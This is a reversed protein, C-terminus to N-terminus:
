IACRLCRCAVCDQRLHQRQHQSPTAPTRTSSLKSCAWALPAGMRASNTPPAYEQSACWMVSGVGEPWPTARQMLIYAALELCRYLGECLGERAESACKPPGITELLAAACQEPEPTHLVHM